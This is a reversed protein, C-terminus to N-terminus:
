AARGATGAAAAASRGTGGGARGGSGGPGDSGGGSPRRPRLLGVASLLSTPELPQRRPAPQELAPGQPTAEPPPVPPLRDLWDTITQRLDESEPSGDGSYSGVTGM